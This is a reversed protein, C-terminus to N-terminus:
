TREFHLFRSGQFTLKGLDQEVLYGYREAPVELEMRDGSPVQFTAYYDTHSHDGRVCIRKAVVTADVTLEPSRRDNCDKRIGKVINSVIMFLVILFVIGFMTMFFGM